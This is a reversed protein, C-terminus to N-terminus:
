RIAAAAASTFSRTFIPSTLFQQNSEDIKIPLGDIEIPWKPIIGRFYVEDPQHYVWGESFYSSTLQSSSIGLINSVYFHINWVVLWCYPYIM